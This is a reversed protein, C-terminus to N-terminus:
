NNNIRRQIVRSWREKATNSTFVANEEDRSENRIASLIFKQSSPCVELRDSSAYHETEHNTDQDEITGDYSEAFFLDLLIEHSTPSRIGCVESGNTEVESHLTWWEGSGEDTAHKISQLPIWVNGLVSDWIWGSKWVQVLLGSQIDSLDFSYDQEWCPESGPRPVTVSQLNHVKIIVYTSATGSFQNFRGRKVKVCLLVM